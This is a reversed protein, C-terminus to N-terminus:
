DSEKLLILKISNQSFYLYYHIIFFLFINYIIYIINYIFFVLFVLFVLFGGGGCSAKYLKPRLNYESRSQRSIIIWIIRLDTAKLGEPGM